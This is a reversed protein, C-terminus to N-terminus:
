ERSSARVPTAPIGRHIPQFVRRYRAPAVGTRRRFLRRFFSPDEYGIAFCIEEVPQDSTELLHKAEEIRLNQVYDILALGTAQKFRRKLTRQPMRAHGVVRAVVGPERFHQRLWNECDRVFALSASRSSRSCNACACEGTQLVIQPGHRDDDLSELASL